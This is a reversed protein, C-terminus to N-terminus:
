ASWHLHIRTGGGPLPEVELRGGIAIARERMGVLGLHGPRGQRLGVPIGLGDDLVELEMTRDNGSLLVRVLTADAHRLANGIAERGIMFAGYEVDGPWRQDLVADDAELLLDVEGGSPVRQRLENDLAAALGQEDLLPPRLEALVQRTNKVADDILKSVKACQQKLLGSMQGGHMGVAADLNLRAVALTQGLQDHLLQAVRRTMQKEQTLLRQTLESLGLQYALLMRETARREGIDRLVVILQGEPLTRVSAEVPMSGGDRGLVEWEVRRQPQSALLELDEGLRRRDHESLLTELRLSPWAERPQGLMAEAQPNADQLRHEADFVLVGDGLQEVLTRRYAEAERLAEEARKRETIDETTGAMYVARGQPNWVAQGRTHFWRWSGDRHAARFELDYPRRDRLHRVLAQRLLPRDQPHLVDTLTGLGDFSPALTPRDLARWVSPSQRLTGREEDWEWVRDEVAALRYRRESYRLQEQTARRAAEAAVSDSIDVAVGVLVTPMGSGPDVRRLTDRFHRWAGDAGRRRYEIRFVEAAGFGADLEATVRAVDDPHMGHTLGDVSALWDETRAGMTRAYASVYQYRWVGDVRQARYLVVPTHEALMRLDIEHEKLAAEARRRETVDTFFISLGQPSPFIRNEFWRQWPAFHQELTIPTQTAMAQEYAEHFPQGIGEPFETWIHRGLLDEPRDRGLMRAAQANVYTYIGDSDLAVFGDVVRDLVDRLLDRASAAEVFARQRETVDHAVGFVGVIQGREDRLPGKTTLYVRPGNVTEVAEEFVMVRDQAAVERDNAVLRAVSEPPFLDADTHGVIGSLGVRAARERDRNHFQYRGELDKVFIVDTANDAIAQLLRRSQAQGARAADAAEAIERLSGARRRLAVGLLAASLAVFLLDAGFELWGRWVADGVLRHVLLDATGFWVVSAALYTVLIVWAPQPQRPGRKGAVPRLPPPPDAPQM